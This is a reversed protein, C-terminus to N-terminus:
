FVLGGSPADWQLRRGHQSRRIDREIERKHRNAKGFM